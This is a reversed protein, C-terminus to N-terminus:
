ACAQKPVPASEPLLEAAILASWFEPSIPESFWTDAQEVEAMKACGVLVCAVQPHALPFQLAAAPLKVNFRACISELKRVRDVISQSPAAYDYHSQAAQASGNVLIGSNFVGGIMLSVGRQACRPLLLPLASQDLLSYRGALLFCDFDAADILDVCIQWENVGLGIARVQGTEKLTQMAKLGGQLFEARREGDQDGHTVPGIDHALLIDVRDVQLRRLSAEHSRMVGDYSYDFVPEFPMPSAYGHRVAFEDELECPVLRRGVKTSLVPRKSVTALEQGLRMESLGFGYFPATDFLDWGRSLACRLTSQADDDSIPRYLNGLAACGLGLVPVDLASRGLKRTPNKKSPIPTASNM